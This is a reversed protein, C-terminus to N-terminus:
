NNLSEKALTESTMLMQRQTVVATLQVLMVDVGCVEQIGDLRVQVLSQAFSPCRARVGRLTDTMKYRMKLKFTMFVVIYSPLLLLFM